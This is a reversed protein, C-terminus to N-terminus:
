IRRESVGIHLYIINHITGIIYIIHLFLLHGQNNDVYHVNHVIKICQDSDSGNERYLFIQKFGENVLFNLIIVEVSLCTKLM